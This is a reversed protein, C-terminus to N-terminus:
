ASNSRERRSWSPSKKTVGTSRRSATRGCRHLVVNEVGRLALARELTSSYYPFIEFAHIRGRPGVRRALPYSWAGGHAGFDLAVEEAAVFREVLALEFPRKSPDSFRPM